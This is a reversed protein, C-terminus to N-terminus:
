HSTNNKRRLAVGFHENEADTKSKQDISLGNRGALLPEKETDSSDSNSDSVQTAGRAGLAREHHIERLAETKLRTGREGELATIRKEKINDRADSIDLRALITLIVPDSAISSSASESYKRTVDNYIAGEATLREQEIRQRNKIEEQESREQRQCIARYQDGLYFGGMVLAAGAAGVTAMMVATMIAVPVTCLMLVAAGIVAITGCVCTAIGTKEAIWKFMFMKEGIM